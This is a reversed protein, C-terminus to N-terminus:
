QFEWKHLSQLIDLTAMSATQPPLRRLTDAIIAGIHDFTDMRDGVELERRSLELRVTDNPWGEAFLRTYLHAKKSCKNADEDSFGRFGSPSRERTRPRLDSESFGRFGSDLSFNSEADDFSPDDDPVYINAEDVAIMGLALPPPAFHGPMKLFVRFLPLFHEGRLVKQTTTLSRARTVKQFGGAFVLMHTRYNVQPCEKMKMKRCHTPKLHPLHPLPKLTSCNVLFSPVKEFPDMCRPDVNSNCLICMISSSTRPEETSLAASPFHLLCWFLLNFM